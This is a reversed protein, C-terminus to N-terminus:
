EEMVKEISSTPTAFTLIANPMPQLQAPLPGSIDFLPKIIEFWTWSQVQLPNGCIVNSQYITISGKLTDLALVEFEEDNSSSPSDQSETAVIQRLSKEKQSDRLFRLSELQLKKFGFHLRAWGLWSSLSPPNPPACKRSSTFDYFGSEVLMCLNPSYGPLPIPSYPNNNGTGTIARLRGSAVYVQHLRSNIHQTRNHHVIARGRPGFSEDTEEFNTTEARGPVGEYQFRFLDSSMHHAADVRRMMGEVTMASMLQQPGSNAANRNSLNNAFGMAIGKRIKARVPLDKLHDLTLDQTILRRRDNRQTVQKEAARPISDHGQPNLLRSSKSGGALSPEPIVDSPNTVTLPPEKTDTTTIQIHPIDPKPVKAQAPESGTDDMASSNPKHIASPDTERMTGGPSEVAYVPRGRKSIVQDSPPSLRRKGMSNPLSM